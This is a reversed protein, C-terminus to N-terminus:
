KPLPSGVLDIKDKLAGLSFSIQEGLDLAYLNVLDDEGPASALGVVRDLAVPLIPGNNYDVHGGLLNVSGPAHGVIVASKGFKKIYESRIDVLRNGLTDVVNDSEGPYGSRNVGLDM